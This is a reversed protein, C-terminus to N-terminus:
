AMILLLLNYLKLQMQQLLVIDHASINISKYYNINIASM